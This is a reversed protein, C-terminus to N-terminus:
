GGLRDALRADIDGMRDRAAAREENLQIREPIRAAQASLAVEMKILLDYHSREVTGAPSHHFGLNETVRIGERVEDAWDLFWKRNNNNQTM